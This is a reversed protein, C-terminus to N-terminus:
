PEDTVKGMEGPQGRHEQGAGGVIREDLELLASQNRELPAFGTPHYAHYEWRL